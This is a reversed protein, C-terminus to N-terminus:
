KLPALTLTDGLQLGLAAATDPPISVTGDPHELLPGLAARFDIAPNALLWPKESSPATPLAAPLASLVANRAARLTRIHATAARLQPGADFIDVENALEFGEGLLLALAPETNPHVRGIVERVADPLLNLYIPHRPMLNEIFAKDGLGSLLDAGYFDFDFFHRGIADWFPSRGGPNLYGRLEAIVTQAFREPFARMFLFRALSLLRGVGAHRHDHRLFLSCLETPGSHTKKLRLLPVEKRIGLAEHVHSEHVIEYSYFPEFGGVRAALASTGVLDGTASDELVFLYYEGGAKRVRAAFSRLSHDIRDALVEEDAPLSTMGSAVRGALAVLRRLDASRVPRLVLM